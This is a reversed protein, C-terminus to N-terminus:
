SVHVIKMRIQTLIETKESCLLTTSGLTVVSELKKVAVHNKTMRKASLTLSGNVAALLGEPVNFVIM